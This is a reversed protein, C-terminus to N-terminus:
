RSRSWSGGGEEVGEPAAEVAPSGGGDGFVITFTSGRGPESEVALEYGLLECLSQSIALGLGTGSFSRSAGSEM